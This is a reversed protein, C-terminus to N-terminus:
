NAALEHIKGRLFDGMVKFSYVMNAKGNTGYSLYDVLKQDDDLLKVFDNLLYNQPYNSRITSSDVKSLYVSITEFLAKNLLQKKGGIHISKVKRFAYKRGFLYEANKMANIFSNYVENYKEDSISNYQEVTKDLSTEMYGNYSTLLSPDADFAENFMIFRLAMEQADMRTDKLSKDTADNFEQSSVMAKLLRRMKTSAFCNRIEQNNLARGGTNIRKFINYKVDIPSSPDIVNVTFQTMNFWRFYKPDLGKKGTAPDDKYYRDKVGEKLYELKKLPFKNEMFDNITTLRQLGDVVTQRGENDECFYFVPLPIRLLLSEILRDKQESDWVFHRQFEPNLDIDGNQIMDSILRISFSKISVRIKNPDFPSVESSIEDNVEETNEVGKQRKDFFEIAYQDLKQQLDDDNIGRLDLGPEFTLGALSLHGYMQGEQDLLEFKDDDKEVVSFSKLANNETKLELM